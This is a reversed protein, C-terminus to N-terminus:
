AVAVVEWRNAFLLRTKRARRIAGIMTLAKIEVRILAGFSQIRRFTLRFTRDTKM